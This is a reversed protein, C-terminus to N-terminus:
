QITFHDRIFHHIMGNDRHWQNRQDENLERPNGYIEVMWDTLRQNIEEYSYTFRIPENQPPTIQREINM